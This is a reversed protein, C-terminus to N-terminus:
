GLSSPGQQSPRATLCPASALWSSRVGSVETRPSASNESCCPSAAARSSSIRSIVRIWCSAYPHSQQDLILQEGLQILVPWQDPIRDIQGAGRGIGHLHGQRDLPGM